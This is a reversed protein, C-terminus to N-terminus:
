LDYTKDAGAPFKRHTEELLLAVTETAGQRRALECAESLDAASPAGFSLFLKLGPIDREGVLWRLTEAPQERLYERYRDAAASSLDRPWRLRYFALKRTSLEEHEMAMLAPFLADYDSLMLARERFCNRYPYGGGSIHYDFHKAPVNEEYSEWYEPFILRAEGGDPYLLSVDMERSFEDALHFLTRITSDQLCLFFRQLSPANMFLCAGWYVITDFFHLERLGTCGFFAYDGMKRLTKPLTISRIKQNDSEETEDFFGPSVLIREGDEPEPFDPSFAHAGLVTVPLGLLTEPLSVAPDSTRVRLIEMGDERRRCTLLLRNEGYVTEL